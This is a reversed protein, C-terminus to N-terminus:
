ARTQGGAFRRCGRRGARVNHRRALPQRRSSHREDARRAAVRFPGFPQHCDCALVVCSCVCAFFLVACCLVCFMLNPEVYPVFLSRLLCMICSRCPLLHAVIPICSLPRAAARTHQTQQTSVAIMEKRAREAERQDIDLHGGDGADVSSPDFESIARAHGPPKSGGAAPAGTRKRRSQGPTAAAAAAAADATGATSSSSSAPGAMESKEDSSADGSHPDAAPAAVTVTRSGRRVAAATPAAAAGHSPAPPVGVAAPPRSAAGGRPDLFNRVLDSRRMWAAPPWGGTHTLCLAFVLRIATLVCRCPCLHTHNSIPLASKHLTHWSPFLPAAEYLAPPSRLFFFLPAFSVILSVTFPDSFCVAECAPWIARV